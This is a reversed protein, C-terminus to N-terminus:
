CFTGKFRRRHWEEMVGTHALNLYQMPPSTQHKIQFLGIGSGSGVGLLDESWNAKKM